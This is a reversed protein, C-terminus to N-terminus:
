ALRNRVWDHTVRCAEVFAEADEPSMRFDRLYRWNYDWHACRSWHRKMERDTDLDAALGSLALLRDLSHSRAGALNPGDPMSGYHEIVESWRVFRDEGQLDLRRIIYVKLICEVAYGALYCAGCLHRRGADSSGARRTPPELLEFADDLRRPGAARLESYGDYRM